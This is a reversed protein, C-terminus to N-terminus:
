RSSRPSMSSRGRTPTVRDLSFMGIFPEVFPQTVSFIFDVIDNGPNAVLLLLIIRLILLAQLIGFAFTM